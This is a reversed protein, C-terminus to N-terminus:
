HCCDPCDDWPVGHTCLEEIPEEKKLYEHILVIAAKLGEWLIIISLVLIVQHM